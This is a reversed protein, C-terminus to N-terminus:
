LDVIYTVRFYNNMEDVCIEDINFGFRDAISISIERLEEQVALVQSVSVSIYCFITGFETAVTVDTLKSSISSDPIKELVRNRFKTVLDRLDSQIEAILSNSTYM